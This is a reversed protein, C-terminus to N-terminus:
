QTRTITMVSNDALIDFHKDTLNLKKIVMDVAHRNIGTVDFKCSQNIDLGNLLPLLLGPVALLDAVPEEPLDATSIINSEM